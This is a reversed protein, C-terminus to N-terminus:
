SPGRRSSIVHALESRLRGIRPATLLAAVRERAEEARDPEEDRLDEVLEALHDGGRTLLQKARGSHHEGEHREHDQQDHPQVPHEAGHRAEQEAAAAAVLLLLLLVLLLLLMLLLLLLLLSM